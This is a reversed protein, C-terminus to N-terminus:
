SDEKISAGAFLQARPTKGNLLARAEEVRGQATLLDIEEDLDDSRYREPTVAKLILGEAM